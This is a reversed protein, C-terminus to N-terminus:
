PRPYADEAVVSREHMALGGEEGEYEWILDEVERLVTFNVMRTGGEWHRSIIQANMIKALETPCWRKIWLYVSDWIKWIKSFCRKDWLAFIAFKIMKLCGTLSKERRQPSYKPAITEINEASENRCESEEYFYNAQKGIQNKGACIYITPKDWHSTM